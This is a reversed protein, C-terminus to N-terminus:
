NYTMINVSAPSYDTEEVVLNLIQAIEESMLETDNVIVNVNKSSLTVIADSFGKAKIVSELILETEMTKCVELRMEEAAAKAVDTSSASTVIAELYLIEQDRTGDRDTRFTSFFSAATRSGGDIITQGSTDALVFNLVGSVVLLLVMVSLLIIKKKKSM